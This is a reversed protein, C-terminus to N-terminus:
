PITYHGEPPVQPHEDPLEAPRWSPCPLSSKNVVYRGKEGLPIYLQQSVEAVPRGMM